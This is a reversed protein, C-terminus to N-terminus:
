NKLIIEFSGKSIDNVEEYNIDKIKKMLEVNNNIYEPISYKLISLNKSKYPDEKNKSRSGKGTIISIKNVSKSHAENIFNYIIKNAEELSYGHLDISISKSFLKSSNKKEDKDYLKQNKKIFDEWDKKDKNTIKKSM